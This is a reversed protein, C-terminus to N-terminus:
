RSVTRRLKRRGYLAMLPTVSIGHVVISVAVVSLTLAVIQEVLPRSLGQNVAFMLYYISGIGRIGFWSILLRQDRSVRAGVLGFSVSVPRVVLFLLVVFWGARPPLNAYALMAGALLVVVVEALRELQANFGQVEQTM